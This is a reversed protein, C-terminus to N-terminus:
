EAKLADSIKDSMRFEDSREVLHTVAVVHVAEALDGGFGRQFVEIM